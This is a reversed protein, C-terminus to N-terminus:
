MADTIHAIKPDYAVFERSVACCPCLLIGFRRLHSAVAQYHARGRAADFPNVETKRAKCM